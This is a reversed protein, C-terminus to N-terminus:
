GKKVVHDEIEYKVANTMLCATVNAAQIHRSATTVAAGVFM